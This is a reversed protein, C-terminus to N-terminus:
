GKGAEVSRRQPHLTARNSEETPINILFLINISDATAITAKACKDQNTAGGGAIVGGREGLVVM